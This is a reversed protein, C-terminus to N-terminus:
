EDSRRMRVQVPQAQMAFENAMEIFQKKMQSRSMSHGDANFDYYAAVNAAKSRWVDAAAANLDYRRATLYYATGMQNVTGFSIHGAQYNITANSTVANGRSDTVQFQATGEEYEAPTCYYDFYKATGSGDMTPVSELAESFVDTRNQDLVVQLQDDSWYAVSAVTYDATGVQALGRLRAITNAMGTRAAM